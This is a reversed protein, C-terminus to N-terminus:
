KMWSMGFYHSGQDLLIRSYKGFYLMDIADSPHPAEEQNITTKKTEPRKDKSFGKPTELVSVNMMSQWAVKAGKNLDDQNERNFM